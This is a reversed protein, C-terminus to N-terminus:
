ITTPSWLVILLGAFLLGTTLICLAWRLRRTKDRVRSANFNFARDLDALLQKAAIDGALLAGNFALLGMTRGDLSAEDAVQAMIQTQSLVLTADLLVGVSLESGSPGSDSM